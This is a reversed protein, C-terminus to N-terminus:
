VILFEFCLILALLGILVNFPGLQYAEDELSGEGILGAKLPHGLEKPLM